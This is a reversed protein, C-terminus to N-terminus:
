SCCHARLLRMLEASSAGASEAEKMSEDIQHDEENFAALVTNVVSANGALPLLQAAQSGSM